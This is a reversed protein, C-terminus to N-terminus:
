PIKNQGLEKCVSYLYKAAEYFINQVNYGTKASCETFYKTRRSLSFDKGEKSNVQRENEKDSKNGVIFIPLEQDTQSRLDKIWIDLNEFTKKNSIDYVIIALSTNRYFGRVLSRYVEQGCTDWIQLKIKLENVCYYM